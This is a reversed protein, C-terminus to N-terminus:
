GCLYGFFFSEINVDTQTSGGSQYIQVQAIDSADMDAIVTFTNTQYSLDASYNPDWIYTYLRNSTNIIIQYYTAATDQADLRMSTSLLYAGTVPATFTSGDHNNGRDIVQTAFTMTHTTNVAINNIGSNRKCHFIPNNSSTIEGGSQIRMAEGSAQQFVTYGGATNNQIYSPGARTFQVSNGDLITDYTGSVHLKSSPSDTGIGVNGSSDIRMRETGAAVHWSQIPATGDQRAYIAPIGSNNNQYVELKGVASANGIGVNGSSDMTVRQVGGATSDVISFKGDTRSQITYIRGSGGSSELKIDATDSSKTLHLIAAANTTGLGLREASADWFFKPTTGTDEYFSIDGNDAIRLREIGNSGGDTNVFFDGANVGTATFGISSDSSGVRFGLAAYTGTTGNSNQIRATPSNSANSASYSTGVSYDVNLANIGTGDVTLGDLTLTGAIDKDASDALDRARTM